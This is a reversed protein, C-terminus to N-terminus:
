ADPQLLYTMQSQTQIKQSQTWTPFVVGAAQNKSSASRFRGGGNCKLSTMLFVRGEVGQGQLGRVGVEAAAPSAFWFRGGANRKFSTVVFM